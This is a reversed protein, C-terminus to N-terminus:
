FELIKYCEKMYGSQDNNIISPLVEKLRTALLKAM